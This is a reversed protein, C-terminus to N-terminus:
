LGRWTRGGRRELDVITRDEIRRLIMDIKRDLQRDFWESAEDSDFINADQSAVSDISSAAGQYQGLEAPSSAGDALRRIV